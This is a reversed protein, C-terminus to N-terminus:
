RLGSLGSAVTIGFPNLMLTLKGGCPSFAIIYVTTFVESFESSASMDAFAQSVKIKPTEICGRKSMILEKCIVARRGKVLMVSGAFAIVRKSTMTEMTAKSKKGSAFGPNVSVSGNEALNSQNPNPLTLKTSSRPVKRMIRM